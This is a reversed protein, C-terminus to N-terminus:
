AEWGGCPKSEESRSAWPVWDLRGPDLQLRTDFRYHSLKEEITRQCREIYHMGRHYRLMGLQEMADKADQHRFCLANSIDDLTVFDAACTSLYQLIVRQWYLRYSVQM